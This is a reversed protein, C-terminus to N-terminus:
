KHGAAPMENKANDQFKQMGRMQNELQRKGLYYTFVQQGATSGASIIGGMGMGVAAKAKLAEKLSGVVSPIAFLIGLSIIGIMGQSGGPSLLPPGWLRAGSTTYKAMISGIMIMIAAIPFTALNVILNKIWGEFAHSGPFVGLLLQLPSLLLSMIIQIYAQILLVLLRIIAFLFAVAYFFMIIITPAIQFPGAQNTNILYSLLGQTPLMTVTETPSPLKLGLLGLFGRLSAEMGGDWLLHWTDGFNGSVFLSATDATIVEKSVPKLISLAIMIILYMSDILVGVIAYSFTILLLTVVINPLANQVTIVTKPDIKKRFMIFFGIVIM